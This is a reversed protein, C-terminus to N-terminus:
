ATIFSYEISSRAAGYAYTCEGVNSTFTCQDISGFLVHVPALEESSNWEFTSPSQECRNTGACSCVKSGVGSPQNKCVYWDKISLNSYFAAGRIAESCFV